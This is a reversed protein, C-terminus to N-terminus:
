RKDRMSLRSSYGRGEKTDLGMKTMGEIMQDRQKLWQRRKVKWIGFYMQGYEEKKWMRRLGSFTVDIRTFGMLCYVEEFFSQHGLTDIGLALNIRSTLVLTRCVTNDKPFYRM